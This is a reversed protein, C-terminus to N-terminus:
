NQNWAIFTMLRVAPGCHFSNPENFNRLRDGAAREMWGCSVTAAERKMLGPLLKFTIRQWFTAVAFTARHDPKMFEGYFDVPQQWRFAKLIFSCWCDTRTAFFLTSLFFYFYSIALTILFLLKMSRSFSIYLIVETKKWSVIFYTVQKM